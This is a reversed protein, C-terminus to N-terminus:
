LSWFLASFLYDGISEDKKQPAFRLILILIFSSIVLLPLGYSFEGTTNNGNLANYVGIAILGLGALIGLGLFLVVLHKIFLFIIYSMAQIM